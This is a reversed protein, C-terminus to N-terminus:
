KKIGQLVLGVESAYNSLALPDWRGATTIRFKRSPLMQDSRKGNQLDKAPSVFCLQSRAKNLLLVAEHGKLTDRAEPHEKYFLLINTAETKRFDAEFVYKLVMDAM